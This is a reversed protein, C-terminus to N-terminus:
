KMIAASPLYFSVNQNRLVTDKSQTAGHQAFKIIIGDGHTVLAVHSSKNWYLISGAFVRAALPEKRFYGKKRMYPVVGGNNYHGTRLWNDGAWGGWTSAPHWKGAKDAPIGGANLAKSVFNACDTGGVQKSPYEPRFYANANAWSRAALRDYAFPYVLHIRDEAAEERAFLYGNLREIVPDAPKQRVAKDLIIDDHVDTRFFLLSSEPDLSKTKPNYSFHISYPFVSRSPVGVYSSINESYFDIKSKTSRKGSFMLAEKMGQIFPSDDCSRRLTMEAEIDLDFFGKDRETIEYGFHGISYDGAYEEALRCAIKGFMKEFAAKM